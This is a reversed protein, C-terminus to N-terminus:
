SMTFNSLKKQFKDKPDNLCNKKIYRKSFNVTRLFTRDPTITGRDGRFVGNIVSRYGM